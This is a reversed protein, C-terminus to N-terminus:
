PMEETSERRYIVMYNIFDRGLVSNICRIYIHNRGVKFIQVLMRCYCFHSPKQQYLLPNAARRCGQRVIWGATTQARWNLWHNSCALEVLLEVQLPKLVGIFFDHLGAFRCHFRELHTGSTWMDICWQWLAQSIVCTWQVRVCSPTPTHMHTSKCRVDKHEFSFRLRHYNM